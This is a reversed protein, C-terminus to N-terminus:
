GEVVGADAGDVRDVLVLALLEDRHLQQLSLRERLPDPLSREVEAREEVEPRLDRVREFRGM